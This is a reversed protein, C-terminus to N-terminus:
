PRLTIRVRFLRHPQTSPTEERLVVSETTGTASLPEVLHSVAPWPGELTAASTAELDYVLDLAHAARRIKLGSGHPAADLSLDAVDAVRPDCGHAYELWNPRGDLDPDALPGSVAPDDRETSTFHFNDWGRYTIASQPDPAGPSGQPATSIGWSVPEGFGSHPIAPDRLVLSRGGGDTAPYWGDKYSFDLIVEGAPDTLELREGANDLQGDYPGLVLTNALPHRVAFAAPYKAVILRAGAALTTAPFTFDIGATFRCGTLDLPSEGLNVLELFEFDDKAVGPLASTEVATPPAPHYQIEAIRLALQHATPAGAYDFTAILLGSADRLALSEGRASLQGSYNGQVLRKQGGTPGSSRNRFAAADKALHIRGQFEVVATGTGSPIVTGSEFAHRVAGEVTWGSLDVAQATTNRLSLYEDAQTGSSPNFDLGDFVVMGPTNLQPVDPLPDGSGSALGYRQRSSPQVDALFARRPQFYNQIVHEVEDRPALGRGWTGWKAFDLDADTWASPVPDPDITAVIQRMRSELVGTRVGVRQLTEDMLTRFRRLFMARFEPTEAILRYLRNIETQVPRIPSAHYIADDFYGPGSNWDHGFTLDVDWIIPRWEYTRGTDRYMYYNKHGHDKDSILQRTALYNITAPLNIHDYAFTRRTALATAPNLGNILAQLDSKDEERRTKKEGGNTSALADYMKYLAGDPNLGNRELMREDGDEVMDFVGHFAGNRHVRIPFAFHHVGGARLVVEHALTNRTRTKDAHNSLIDVDKVKRDASESWTFRNNANFDFNHSKKAFGATSQGHLDIAINDYFRGLHYLAGRTGAATGAASPNEIFQHVVPLASTAEGADLAVTGFYRDSDLPDSFDPATSTNGNVDAAEFRWRLIQGTAPGNTPLSASFIGDGAVADPPVGDDTLPLFSEAGFQTRWAVRASAPHIAHLSRSIRVTLKQPPSTNNGAPRPLSATPEGLVPGIPGASGNAAGPTPTAFYGPPSDAGSTVIEVVPLLLFDSSTTTTNFGHIALMNTGATLNLPGPAATFDTWDNNLAENRNGGGVSNWAAASPVANRAIEVGNIWAIFGDDWRMRLRLSVVKAPDAVEFPVRLCATRQQNKMRAAIDGGQGIWAGYPAGPDDFGVGTRCSQWSSGGLPTISTQWNAFNANFDALSVPVGVQGPAGQPAAVTTVNRSFGYSVDTVQPPYAPAFASAVSGDPQLLALYEGGAALSFGTHLPSGPAKRNRGSAFVVLHEGPGIVREPFIWMFPQNARDTLRWGALNVAQAGSNFLEIWDSDDGFDDELTRDNSAMFESIVVQAPLPHAFALGVLAAPFVRTLM